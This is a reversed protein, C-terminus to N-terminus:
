RTLLGAFMLLWPNKPNLRGSQQFRKRNQDPILRRAIGTDGRVDDRRAPCARCHHRYATARM